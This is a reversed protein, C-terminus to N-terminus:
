IIFLGAVFSLIISLLSLASFIIFLVLFLKNKTRSYEAYLGYSLSTLGVIILTNRFRAIIWDLEILKDVDSSYLVQNEISVIKSFYTILIVVSISNIFFLISSLFVESLKDKQGIVLYNVLFIILLVVLLDFSFM